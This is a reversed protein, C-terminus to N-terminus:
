AAAPSQMAKVVLGVLAVVGWVVLALAAVSLLLVTVVFAWHRWTSPPPEATLSAYPRLLNINRTDAKFWVDWVNGVVPLSSIAADLLSNIIMRAAVIRPVRYHGLAISLIFLSILSAILDGLGPLLLLLSNIGFRVRTGPVEFCRDMLHSLGDLVDILEPRQSVERRTVVVPISEPQEAPILDAM